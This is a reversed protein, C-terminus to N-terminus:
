SLTKLHKLLRSYESDLKKTLIEHARNYQAENLLHQKEAFMESTEKYLAEQGGDFKNRVRICDVNEKTRRDLHQGIYLQIKCGQSDEM